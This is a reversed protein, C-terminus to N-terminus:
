TNREKKAKKVTWTFVLVANYKNNVYELGMMTEM